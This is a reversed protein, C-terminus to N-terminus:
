NMIYDKHWVPTRKTRESHRPSNGHDEASPCIHDLPPLNELDPEGAVLRNESEARNQEVVSEPDIATVPPSPLREQSARLQRRNRRYTRGNVDVEYSRNELVKTCTGLSWQKENPLKMRIAQGMKLPPLPSNKRTTITYKNRNEIQWDIESQGIM